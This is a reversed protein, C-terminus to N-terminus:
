FNVSSDSTELSQIKLRGTISLLTGNVLEDNLRSMIKTVEISSYVRGYILFYM